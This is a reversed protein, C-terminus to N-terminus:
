RAPPPLAVRQHDFGGVQVALVREAVRARVHLHDLAEGAHRGVHNLVPEGDVVRRGPRPRPGALHRHLSGGPREELVRAVFAIETEVVREHTRPERLLLRSLAGASLRLLRRPRPTVSVFPPRSWMRVRSPQNKPLANTAAPNSIASVDTPACCAGAYRAGRAASPCGFRLPIQCAIFVALQSM